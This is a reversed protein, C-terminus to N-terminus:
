LLTGLTQVPIALAAAFPVENVVFHTFLNSTGRTNM